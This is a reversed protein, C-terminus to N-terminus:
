IDVDFGNSKGNFKGKIIWGRSFLWLWFTLQLWTSFLALYSDGGYQMALAYHLFAYVGFFVFYNNNKGKNVKSYKLLFAYLGGIFFQVIQAYLLGFDSSYYQYITYVNTKLEGVSIFDQAVTKINSDDGLLAYLFRLSNKGYVYEIPEKTWHIFAPTSSCLYIKVQESFFEKLNGNILHSYKLTATYLFFMLFVFCIITVLFIKKYNIKSTSHLWITIIAILPLLIQARGTTLLALILSIFVGHYFTMRSKRSKEFIFYIIASIITIAYVCLRLRGLMPTPTYLRHITTFFNEVLNAKVFISMRIVEFIVYCDSLLLFLNLIESNYSFNKLIKRSGRIQIVQMRQFCIYGAAFTLVGLLFYMYLIDESYIKYGIFYQLFYIVAFEIGLLVPTARIDKFIILAIGIYFLTCIGLILLM